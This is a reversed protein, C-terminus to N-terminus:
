YPSKPYGSNNEYEESYAPFNEAKLLFTIKYKGGIRDGAAVNEVTKDAQDEAAM